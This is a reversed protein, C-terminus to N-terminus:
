APPHVIPNQSWLIICYFSKKINEWFCSYWINQFFTRKKNFSIKCNSLIWLSPLLLLINAIMPTLVPWQWAVASNNGTIVFLWSIFELSCVSIYLFTILHDKKKDRKCQPIEQQIGRFDAWKIIKPCVRKVMVITYIDSRSEQSRYKITKIMIWMQQM